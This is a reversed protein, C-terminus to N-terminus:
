LTLGQDIIQCLVHVRGKSTLKLLWLSLIGKKIWMTSRRIQCRFMVIVPNRNTINWTIEKIVGTSVLSLKYFEIWLFLLIHQYPVPLLNCYKWSRNGTLNWFRCYFMLYLYSIISHKMIMCSKYHNVLKMVMATKDKIKTNLFCKSLDWKPWYSNFM